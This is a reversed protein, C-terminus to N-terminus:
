IIEFDVVHFTYGINEAKNKSRFHYFIKQHGVM